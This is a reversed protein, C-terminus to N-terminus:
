TGSTMGPVSWGDDPRYFQEVYDRYTRDCVGKHLYFLPSSELRTHGPMTSPEVYWTVAIGPPPTRGHDAPSAARNQHIRDGCVECLMMPCLVPISTTEDRIVMVIPM